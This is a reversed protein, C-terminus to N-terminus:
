PRLIVYFHDTSIENGSSSWKRSHVCIEQPVLLPIQDVRKHLTVRDNIEAAAAVCHQRTNLNAPASSPSTERVDILPIERGNVQRISAM